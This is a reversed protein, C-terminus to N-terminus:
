RKLEVLQQRVTYILSEACRTPNALRYGETASLGPSGKDVRFRRSCVAKPPAVQALVPAIPEGKDNTELVRLVFRARLSYDLENRSADDLFETATVVLGGRYGAQRFFDRPKAAVEKEGRLLTSATTVNSASWRLFEAPDVVVASVGIEQQLMDAAQAALLGVKPQHLIYKKEESLQVLM